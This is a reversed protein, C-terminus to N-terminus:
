EGRKITLSSNTEIEEKVVKMKEEENPPTETTVVGSEPRIMWKGNVMHFRTVNINLQNPGDETTLYYYAAWDGDQKIDIYQHTSLDSFLFNKLVTKTETDSWRSKFMAIKAEDKTTEEVLTFYTDPTAEDISARAQNYLTTMQERTFMVLSPTSDSAVPVSATSTSSTKLTPAVVAPAQHSCGTLVVSGLLLFSATLIRRM